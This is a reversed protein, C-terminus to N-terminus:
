SNEKTASNYYYSECSEQIRSFQFKAFIVLDVTYQLGVLFDNLFINFPPLPPCKKRM